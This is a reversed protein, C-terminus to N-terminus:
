AEKGKRADFDVVAGDRFTLTFDEILNGQYALPLSSKLVGEARLRHPM